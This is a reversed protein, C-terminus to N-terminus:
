NEKILIRCDRPGKMTQRACDREQFVNHVNVSTSACVQVEVDRSIATKMSRLKTSSECTIM